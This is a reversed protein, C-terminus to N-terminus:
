SALHNNGPKPLDTTSCYSYSSQLASSTINSLNDSYSQTGSAMSSRGRNMSGVPQARNISGVPTRRLSAVPTRRLSAVPSSGIKSTKPPLNQLISFIVYLLSLLSLLIFFLLISVTGFIILMRLWGRGIIQAKTNPITENKKQHIIKLNECDIAQEVTVNTVEYLTLNNSHVSLNIEMGQVEVSVGAITTYCQHVTHPDTGDFRYKPIETIASLIFSFSDDQTSFHAYCTYKSSQGLIKVSKFSRCCSDEEPSKTCRADNLDPWLEVSDDRNVPCEMSRTFTPPTKLVRNQCKLTMQVESKNYLLEAENYVIAYEKPPCTTTLSIVMMLCLVSYCM